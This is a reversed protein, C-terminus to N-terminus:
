QILLGAAVCADLADVLPGGSRKRSLLGLVSASHSGVGAATAARLPPCSPAMAGPGGAPPGGPREGDLRGRRLPSGPALLAAAAALRAGPRMDPGPTPPPRGPPAAMAPAGAGRGGGRAAVGAGGVTYRRAAAAGYM